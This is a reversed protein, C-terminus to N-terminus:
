FEYALGIGAGLGGIDVKFDTTEVYCNSYNLFFDIM